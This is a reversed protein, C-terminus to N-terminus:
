RPGTGTGTDTDTGTSTGTRWYEPISNYDNLKTCGEYCYEGDPIGIYGNEDGNEVRNWLPIANGELNVCGAFTGNFDEIERCYDFINENISTLSVCSAFMHRVDKVRKCGALMNEGVSTLNTCGAFISEATDLWICNYLMNKGVEELNTCGGFLSTVSLIRSNAFLNDGVKVLNKCQAFIDSRGMLNKCNAFLNDPLEKLRSCRSFDMYRLNKFSNKTQCAIEALGKAGALDIRYLDVTGWQKVKILKDANEVQTVPGSVLPHRNLSLYQYIGNIKIDYTGENLYKHKGKEEINDNTMEEVTGDGWDVTFDYTAIMTGTISNTINYPLEIVDNSEVQYELILAEKGIDDDLEINLNKIQTVEVEIEKTIGQYSIIFKYKGNKNVPYEYVGYDYMEVEYNEEDEVIINEYPQMKLMFEEPKVITGDILFEELSNYGLDEYLETLNEYTGRGLENWKSMMDEFNKYPADIYDYLMDWYSAGELFITEKEELTKNELIEKAYQAYNTNINGIIVNIKIIASELNEQIVDYTVGIDDTPVKKHKEVKISLDKEVIVDYKENWVVVRNAQIYSDKFYTNLKLILRTYSIPENDTFHNQEMELRCLEAEDKIQAMESRERAEKTKSIIGNNGLVLNLSVGALILLVVITVVLAILTIAKQSNLDKLRTNKNKNERTKKM